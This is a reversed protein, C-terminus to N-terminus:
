YGLSFAGSCCFSDKRYDAARKFRIFYFAAIGAILLPMLVVKSIDAYREKGAICSILHFLAAAFFPMCCQLFIYETMDNNYHM